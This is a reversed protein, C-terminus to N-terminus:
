IRLTNFPKTVYIRRHLQYSQGETTPLKKQVRPQHVWMSARALYRYTVNKDFFPHKIM